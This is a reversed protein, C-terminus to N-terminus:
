EYIDIHDTCTRAGELIGSELVEKVVIRLQHNALSRGLCAGSGLGFPFADREPVFEFPQPYVASNHHFVYAAAGVKTGPPLRYGSVTLGASDLPVIRTLRAPSARIVARLYPLPQTDGGAPQQAIEARLRERVDPHRILHFLVTTLMVATSDAGAFMAAKCQVLSEARAIGVAQIRSQYTDNGPDPTNLVDVAIQLVTHLSASIEADSPARAFLSSFITTFLWNPLLSLRGFAVITLAFPTASLKNAWHLLNAKKDASHTHHSQPLEDLGRYVLHFLYTTLYDISLRSSLDLIDVKPNPKAKDEQLRAVFKRILPATVADREYAAQIRSPAFLPLVAKARQDRYSQDLASFITDHGEICFNRHRADKSLSGGAFYVQHLAEGDSLAVVDPAIRLVPACYKTHYYLLVRNEIGFYYIAYLFLPLMCASAPGPVHALPHLYRHYIFVSALLVVLLLTIHSLNM